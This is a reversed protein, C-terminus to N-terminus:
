LNGIYEPNQVLYSVKEWGYLLSKDEPPDRFLESVGVVISVGSPCLSVLYRAINEEQGAPIRDIEGVRLQSLVDFVDTKKVEPLPTTGDVNFDLGLIKLNSGIDKAFVSLISLPHLELTGPVSSRLRLEEINPWAAAMAAIEPPQLAGIRAARLCLQRLSRCALLPSISAFNIDGESQVMNLEQLSDFGNSLIESVFRFSVDQPAALRCYLIRLTSRSSTLAEVIDNTFDILSSLFQLRTQSRIFKSFAEELPGAARGFGWTFLIRRLQCAQNSLANLTDVGSELNHIRKLDSPGICNFAFTELSPSIFFLIQPGTYSAGSYWSLSRVRPLLCRSTSGPSVVSSAAELAKNSIKSRSDGWVSTNMHTLTLVRNSLRRFRSVDANSIDTIYNWGEQTCEMPGLLGLLCLASPVARWLCDNAPDEWAKCVLACSALSARRDKSNLGPDADISDFIELLLEPLFLLRHASM